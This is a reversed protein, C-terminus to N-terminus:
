VGFVRNETPIWRVFRHQFATGCGIKVAQASTRHAHQHIGVVGADHRGCQTGLEQQQPLGRKLKLNTASHGFAPQLGQALATDLLKM